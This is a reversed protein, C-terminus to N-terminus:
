VRCVRVARRVRSALFVQFDQNVRQEMAATLDPHVEHDQHDMTARYVVLAPSDLFEWKEGIV